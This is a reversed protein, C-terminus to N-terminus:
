CKVESRSSSMYLKNKMEGSPRGILYKLFNIKDNTIIINSKNYIM